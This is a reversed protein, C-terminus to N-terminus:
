ARILKGYTIHGDKTVTAEYFVGREIIKDIHALQEETFDDEEDDDREIPEM